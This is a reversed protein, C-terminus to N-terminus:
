YHHTISKINQLPQKHTGPINMATLCVILFYNNPLDQPAREVNRMMQKVGVTVTHQQSEVQPCKISEYVVILFSAFMKQKNISLFVVIHTPTLM